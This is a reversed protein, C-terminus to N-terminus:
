KVTRYALRGEAIQARDQECVHVTTTLKKRAILLNTVPRNQKEEFFSKMTRRYCTKSQNTELGEATGACSELFESAGVMKQAPLPTPCTRPAIQLPGPIAAPSRPPEGSQDSPLATNSPNGFLNVSVGLPPHTPPRPGANTM